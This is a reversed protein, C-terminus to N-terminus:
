RRCQFHQKQRGCSTPTVQTLYIGWYALNPEDPAFTYGPVTIPGWGHSGSVFPLGGAGGVSAINESNRLREMVEKMVLPRKDWPFETKSFLPRAYAVADTELGAPARNLNWLTRAFLTASVVLVLAVAVQGTLVAHAVHGRRGIVAASHEKILEQIGLRSARFAPLLGFLLGAAITLGLGLAVTSSDAQFRLWARDSENVFLLLLETMWYALILGTVGGIGAMLLCETMWQGVLQGRNAGLALRMSTEGTREIGRVVLLSALNACAILFVALALGMLAYLAQSFETRLPSYGRSGDKLRLHRPRSNYRSPALEPPRLGPWRERLLTQAAGFPVDPKLRGMTFFVSAGESPKYDSDFRWQAHHPLYADPPSGLELGLFDPPAVGVIEFPTDLLKVSRGLVSEDAGFFDRWLRHSLVISQAAGLRDDEPRLLRGHTPRIGLADFYNGTVLDVDVLRTRNAFKLEYNGWTWGFLSEFVDFNDRLREFGPYSLRNVIGRSRMVQYLSEPDRVPLPALVLRNFLNFVAVNGGIGLALSLIAIAAFGPRKYLSRGAYRLSRWLEDMWRAGRAARCEEKYAEVAGFELRAQRLAERREMGELVLHDAREEIHCRLEEAMEGELRSRRFMTRGLSALRRWM